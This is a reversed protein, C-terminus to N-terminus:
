YKVGLSTLEAKLGAGVFFALGESTIAIRNGVVQITLPASGQREVVLKLTYSGIFEGDKRFPGVSLAKTVVREADAGTLQVEGGSHLSSVLVRVTRSFASELFAAMEFRQGVAEHPPPLFPEEWNSDPRYHERAVVSADSPICCAQKAGREVFYYLRNVFVLGTYAYVALGGLDAIRQMLLRGDGGATSCSLFRVSRYIPIPPLRRNGRMYPYTTTRLREFFPAWLWENRLQISGEETDNWAGDGADVFGHDGHGIIVATHNMGNKRTPQDKFAKELNAGLARVSGHSWAPLIIGRLLALAGSDRGTSIFAHFTPTPKYSVTTASGSPGQRFYSSLLPAAALLDLGKAGIDM